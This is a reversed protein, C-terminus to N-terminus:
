TEGINYVHTTQCRDCFLGFPAHPMAAWRLVDNASPAGDCNWSRFWTSFQARLLNEYTNM